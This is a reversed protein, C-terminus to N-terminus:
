YPLIIDRWIVARYTYALCLTLKVTKYSLFPFNGVSFLQTVFGQNDKCSAVM